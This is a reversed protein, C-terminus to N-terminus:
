SRRIFSNYQHYMEKDFFNDIIPILKKFLKSSIKPQEIVINPQEIVINPQEIVLQDFVEAIENL